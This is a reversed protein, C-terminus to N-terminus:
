CSEDCRRFSPFFAGDEGSMGSRRLRACLAKGELWPVGTSRQGTSPTSVRSQTSPSHPVKTLNNPCLVREKLIRALSTARFRAVQLRDKCHSFMGLAARPIGPCTCMWARGSHNAPLVTLCCPANFGVSVKTTFKTPASQPFRGPKEESRLRDEPRRAPIIM